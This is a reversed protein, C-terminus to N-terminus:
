CSWPLVGLVAFVAALLVGASTTLTWDRDPRHARGGAHRLHAGTAPAPPSSSTITWAWRWWFFFSLVVVAGDLAPYGLVREFVLWTVGLGAVYSQVVTAVLHVQVLLSRLLVSLILGVLALVLTLMITMDRRNTDDVDVREAAAGGVPAQGTGVEDLQARMAAVTRDAGASGPEDSLVVDIQATTDSAPGRTVGAVGPVAMAADVVADADALDVVVALPDVAGAPLTDALRQAALVAEPPDRLQQDAHAGHATRPGLDGSCGTRAARRGARPHPATLLTGLRAWFWGGRAATRPRSVFPWFARRGVLMLAAPLVVLSALMAVAVGIMSAVAIARLVQTGTLLLVALALVVTGGSALISEGTAAPGCADGRACRPVGATARPLAILLLAYNTAAGFYIVSAIGTPTGDSPLDLRTLLQGALPLAVQETAGEM